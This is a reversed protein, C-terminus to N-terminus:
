IWVRLSMSKGCNIKGNITVSHQHNFKNKHNFNGKFISM